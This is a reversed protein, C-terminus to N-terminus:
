RTTLVLPGDATIAVTHESHAALSGDKTRITWGDPDLTVDYGGANVMPEIAIVLGPQLEVGAGARGFNPVQPEEHMSRGVGHGVLSRVVSYGASEVEAQVAAGIDGVHGGARAAEIGRQLATETASILDAAAASISGIPLTRASDAVWGDLILGCDISLIDGSRLPEPSPIGHVVVDNLSSCISGPFDGAGPAGPYGLFAPVAGRERIAAEALADLELLTVGEKAAACVIDLCQALATGAASMAELEGPSKLIPGSSPQRKRRRSM